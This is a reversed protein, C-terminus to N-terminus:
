MRGGDRRLATGNTVPGALSSTVFPRSARNFGLIFWSAWAALLQLLDFQRFVPTNHVVLTERRIQGKGIHTFKLIAIYTVKRPTPKVFCFSVLELACSSILPRTHPTPSPSPLPISPHLSSLIFPLHFSPFISLLTGNQHQDDAGGLDVTRELSFVCCMTFGPEKSPRVLNDASCNSDKAAVAMAIWSLGQHDAQSFSSYRTYSRHSLFHAVATSHTKLAHTLLPCPGIGVSELKHNSIRAERRVHRSKSWM